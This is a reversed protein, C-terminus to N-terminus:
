LKYGVIDLLWLLFCWASILSYMNSVPWRKAASHPQVKFNIRRGSSRDSKFTCTPCTRYFLIFGWHYGKLHLKSVLFCCWATLTLWVGIQCWLTGTALLEGRQLLHRSPNLIFPSVKLGSVRLPCVGPNLNLDLMDGISGTLSSFMQKENAAVSAWSSKSYRLWGLSFSTQLSLM